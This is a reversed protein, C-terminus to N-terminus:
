FFALLIPQKWLLVFSDSGRAVVASGASGVASAGASGVVVYAGGGAVSSVGATCAGGTSVGAQTDPLCCSAAAGKYSVLRIFAM